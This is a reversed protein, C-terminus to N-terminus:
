GVIAALDAVVHDPAPNADEIRESGGGAGTGSTGSLVLITALGAGHGGAIDSSLRDGVMAVRGRDVGDMAELGIEFMHREPKGAIEAVAGTATEVAALVAGSGPWEGGTMPMTKDRSSGVLTAGADIARKAGRLERYDFDVHASVVVAAAEAPEGEGILELGSGAILQKLAPAGVVFVKGGEGAAERALRAAVVGATVVQEPAIGEVGLEGLREAYDAPVKSPNNTLFVLRKGAERLANLAEPSGPVPEKGVWVVGDFDVLLGDFDDALPV